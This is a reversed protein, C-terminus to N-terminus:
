EYRPISPSSLDYTELVGPELSLIVEGVVIELQHHFLVFPIEHRDTEIAFASFLIEQVRRRVNSTHGTEM